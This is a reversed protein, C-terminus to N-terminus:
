VIVTTALFLVPDDGADDDTPTMGFVVVRAVCSESEGVFTETDAAVPDNTTDHVRGALEYPANSPYTAVAEGPPAVHVENLTVRQAIVPTLGYAM